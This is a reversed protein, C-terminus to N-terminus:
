TGTEVNLSSFAQLEIISPSPHFTTPPEAHLEVEVLIPHDPKNVTCELKPKAGFVDNNLM